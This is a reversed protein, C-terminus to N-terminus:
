RLLLQSIREGIVIAPINTNARPIQPMLSVDGVWVRNLGHVKGTENCVSMAGKGMACTGVPHYYHAVERRIAEDNSVDTCARGLVGALSSHNLMEQAMALGDRLVTLDHDEPDSLYRHDIRPAVEPDTSVIDVSGRSRPTVCAVEILARGKTLLTQTSACVPFLHLDFVNDHALSSCAKGLTQEEPLSGEAAADDLWDQLQAGVERDAHVMPHDHLNAGVGTLANITSVGASALREPNGVGSRQLIAPTGYVGACLVVRDADIAIEEGDRQAIIHVSSEKNIVRDVVTRDLIGFNSRARVPDIYGFASNWRIRNVINVSELGFSENADLDCLDQAMPWGCAEAAELCRQHFPGVEFTEYTRVRMKELATAFLPRLLQTRWLPLNWSDYDTVHGVAAIAGNHASCGGLVRAREFTWPSRNPVPGSTYGWDHSTAIAHANLLDSPWRTINFPGYDPGAEVLLVHVGAETLRAAIVAGSSGGGIVVVDASYSMYKAELIQDGNLFTPLPKNTRM